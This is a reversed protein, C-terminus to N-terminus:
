GSSKLGGPPFEVGRFVPDPTSNWISHRISNWVPIEDAQCASPSCNAPIRAFRIPAIQRVKKFDAKSKFNELGPGSKVWRGAGSCRGESPIVFWLSFRHRSMHIEFVPIPM